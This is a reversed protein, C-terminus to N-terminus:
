GTARFMIRRSRQLDPDKIEKLGVTNRAEKEILKRGIEIARERQHVNLWHKIKNRPAFVQGGCWDRSPKHGPQTLIQRYRWQAAQIAASGHARKSPEVCTARGRHPDSLGFRNPVFGAAACCSERPHSTYGRRYLDIKLTSFFSMPIPYMASAMGCRGCCALRQEDQASVPGDQIELAAAIGEGCKHMEEPRIQVEL